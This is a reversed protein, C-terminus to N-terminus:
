TMDGKKHLLIAQKRRDYLEATLAWSKNVGM